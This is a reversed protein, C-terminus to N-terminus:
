RAQVCLNRWQERASHWLALVLVAGIGVLSYAIFSAVFGGGALGVAGAACAGCIIAAILYVVCM